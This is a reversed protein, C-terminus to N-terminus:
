EQEAMQGIRIYEAEMTQSCELIQQYQNTLFATSASICNRLRAVLKDIYEFGEMLDDGMMKENQACKAEFNSFEKKRTEAEESSSKVLAKLESCKSKNNKIEEELARLEKNKADIVLGITEPNHKAIHNLEKSDRYKEQIKDDLEQIKLCTEKNKLSLDTIGKQCRGINDNLQIVTKSSLERIDELFNSPSVIEAEPKDLNQINLEVHLKENGFPLSLLLDKILEFKEKSEILSSNLKLEYQRFSERLGKIQKEVNVRASEINEVEEVIRCVDDVSLSQNQVKEVLSKNYNRIEELNNQLERILNLRSSKEEEHKAIYALNNKNVNITNVIFSRIMEANNDFYLFNEQNRKLEESQKKLCETIEQIQKMKEYTEMRRNALIIRLENLDKSNDMGQLFLNYAKLMHELTIEQDSKSFISRPLIISGNLADVLWSLGVLLSPWSSPAGVALLSNKSIAYPYGMLKFFMPVEDEIKGGLEYYDDIKHILTMLVLMYDKSNPTQLNKITIPTDPCHEQFFDIIHKQCSLQFARDSFQRPDISIRSNAPKSSPRAASRLITSKRPLDM